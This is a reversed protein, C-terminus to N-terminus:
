FEMKRRLEELPLGTERAIAALDEYEPKERTVGFGASQKIRVSGYPTEATRVGRELAYRECRYARVGLTTTHRFLCALLQARNQERCMCTLLVGPRSKKMGIPITYVDLAGSQFLAEQAFGIDEPTMDDLNCRLEIVTEGSDPITGRLVRLVNACAFDKTGAGCGVQSVQLVPMPGFSDVFHKLLAAGTPTCLESEVAGSRIPVDRLIRLTAPAPVPLVGHACRVTGGGVCVPSALIKEPALEHLLLCVAVVDAMADLSGVEHFHINEMPRGHVASEAEALTDYVRLANDIVARPLELSSIRARVERISTHHDHAHAHDHAHDHEHAHHDHLDPGETQGDIDVTVHTGRIGCKEVQRATIHAAGAFARNLTGLVREPAPHLELLAGTLMDGAAGMACDLYLVNM